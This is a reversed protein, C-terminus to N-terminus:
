NMSENKMRKEVIPPRSATVAVAGQVERKHFGFNTRSYFFSFLFISTNETFTKKWFIPFFFQSFVM